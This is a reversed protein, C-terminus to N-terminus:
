WRQANEFLARVRELDAETDVGLSPEAVEVVHIDYGNELIRLQELRELRELPTPAMRAFELLFERRYVYLGTHKRAAALDHEGDRTFPVPARSFYMARGDSRRVVKVVHPDLLADLSELPECTTSVVSAPDAALAEVAADITSPPIMPEDGQVNVVFDAALSAAVEALRDTGTEHRDSTMVAEFGEAGVADFIRRDDTAVLVRSVSRAQAARECVRVVM